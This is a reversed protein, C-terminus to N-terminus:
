QHRLVRCVGHIRRALKRSTNSAWAELVLVYKPDQSDELRDLLLFLVERNKDNLWDPDPMATPDALWENIHAMIEDVYNEREIAWGRRTYVLLPLRYDYEIDLYGNVILWDIRATIEQLTFGRFAGYVPSKSLGLEFIKKERSGKLIKALLTRGGTMILDDAGRLIIRIEEEALHDVHLPNLSVLVRKVKRSM